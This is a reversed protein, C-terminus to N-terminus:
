GDTFLQGAFTGIDPFYIEKSNAGSDIHFISDGCVYPFFIGGRGDPVIKRGPSFGPCGQEIPIVANWLTDGVPGVKAIRFSDSVQTLFIVSDRWSTLVAYGSWYSSDRPQGSLDFLLTANSGFRTVTAYVFNGARAIAFPLFSDQAGSSDIMVKWIMQGASDFRATWLRAKNAAGPKLFDQEAVIYIVGGQGDPVGLAGKQGTYAPALQIGNTQWRIGGTEDVRQMYIANDYPGYPGPTAGRYDGWWFIAGGKGDDIFTTGGSTGGSDLNYAVVYNAWRRYGFPDLKQLYINNSGAGCVISSGDDFTLLNPTFGPVVCLAQDAYVLTSWQSSVASPLILITVAALLISVISKKLSNGRDQERGRSFSAICLSIM